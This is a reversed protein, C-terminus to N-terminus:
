NKICRVSSGVDKNFGAGSVSVNSTNFGMTRSVTNNFTSSLYWVITGQDLLLGNSNGNGSGVVPLKLPSFVGVSTTEKIM